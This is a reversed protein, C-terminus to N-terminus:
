SAGALKAIVILRHDFTRTHPDFTGGCTILTLQSDPTPDMVSVETPLVLKLEDVLYTFEGYDSTVVVRDGYDIRDLERFVNGERLTAVHGTIVANGPAGVPATNVYHAAVFPVTQWELEGQQNLQMSAPVVETDLGISAVSLHKAWGFVAQMASASEGAPGAGVGASAIPFGVMSTNVGPPRPRDLAAPRPVTVPASPLIDAQVAAGYVLVLAGLAILPLGIGPLSALRRRFWTPSAPRRAEAPTPPPPAQGTAEAALTPTQQPVQPSVYRPPASRHALTRVLAVAEHLNGITLAYCEAGALMEVVARMGPVGHASLSFSQQMLRELGESRAIPELRTVAADAYHPLIVFRVPVPASAVAGEALTLYKMPAGGFRRRSITDNLQPYLHELIAQSGQKVCLSKPFPALRGTFPDLAGVEDSLYQFGAAVLGAVLTTKGSGAVAPLLIGQHAYAIAGAHFLVYRRSLHEVAANNIAWELSALADHPNEASGIPAGNQIITSAGRGSAESRM